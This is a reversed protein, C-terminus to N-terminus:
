FDRELHIKNFIIGKTMGPIDLAKACVTRTEIKLWDSTVRGASLSNIRMNLGSIPDDCPYAWYCAEANNWVIIHFQRGQGSQNQYWVVDYPYVDNGESDKLGIPEESENSLMLNTGDFLLNFVDEHLIFVKDDESSYIVCEGEQLRCSAVEKNDKSLKVTLTTIKSVLFVACEVNYAPSLKSINKVFSMLSESEGDYKHVFMAKTKLNCKTLM